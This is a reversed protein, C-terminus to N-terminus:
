LGSIAPEFGAGAVVDGDIRTPGPVALALRLRPVCEAVPGRNVGQYSLPLAGTRCVPPRQNSVLEPCTVWRARHVFQFLRGAKVRSM